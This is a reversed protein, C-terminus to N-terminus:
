FMFNLCCKGLFQMLFKMDGAHKGAAITDDHIFDCRDALIQAARALDADWGMERMNAAPPQPGPNGQREQGKAVKRRLQNHLDLITQQDAATVGSAGQTVYFFIRMM